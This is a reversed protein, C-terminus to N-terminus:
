FDWVLMSNPTPCFMSILAIMSDSLRFIFFHLKGLNIKKLRMFYRNSVVQDNFHAYHISNTVSSFVIDFHDGNQRSQMTPERM